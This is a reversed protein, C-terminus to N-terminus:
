WEKTTPTVVHGDVIEADATTIKPHIVVGSPHLAAIYDIAAQDNAFFVANWNGGIAEFIDAQNESSTDIEGFLWDGDPYIGLFLDTQQNISPVAGVIAEHPSQGQSNLQYKMRLM